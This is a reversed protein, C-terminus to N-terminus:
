ELFAKRAIEVQSSLFIQMFNKTLIKLQNNKQEQSLPKGQIHVNEFDLFHIVPKGLTEQVVVNRPALDNFLVGKNNAQKVARGIEQMATKSFAEFHSALKARLQGYIAEERDQILFTLQRKEPNLKEMQRLLQEEVEVTPKMAKAQKSFVIEKKFLANQQKVLKQLEPDKIGSRKVRARVYSDLSDLAMFSFGNKIHESLFFQKGKLGYVFGIPKPVRIRKLLLQAATEFEKKASTELLKDGAIEKVFVQIDKGLYVIGYDMGFLSHVRFRKERGEAIDKAFAQITKDPKKYAYFFKPRITAIPKFTGPKARMRPQVLKM